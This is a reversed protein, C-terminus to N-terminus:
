KTKRESIDNEEEPDETLQDFYKKLFKFNLGLKGVNEIISFGENAIIWYMIVDKIVDSKFVLDLSYGVVVMLIMCFKKIIGKLFTNSNIKGTNTKDSKSVFGDCVGTIIDISMMILCAIMVPTIKGTIIHIVEMIGTSISICCLKLFLYNSM